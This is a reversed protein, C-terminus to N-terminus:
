GSKALLATFGGDNWCTPDAGPLGSPLTAKQDLLTLGRKRQMWGVQSGNEERDISCTAYLLHGGSKIVGMADRIISQQLAVLSDVHKTDYRYKAEPRRAFVGSNSCPVDAVVVDFPETPSAGEPTYVAVDLDVALEELVARRGENPETAGIMANPFLERLQKTKTGRGACLDLIRTPQQDITHLLSLSSGSTPDQIRVKPNASLLDSIQLEPPAIGFMPISHPTVSEPLQTGAVILPPEAIAHLGFKVSMEGGLQQVVRQWSKKSFGFQPAESKFVPEHFCVWSGDGRPLHCNNGVEGTEEVSKRLRVIKRLVANVFGTARPRKGGHRTWDVACDIIAHDPIRDFLLLQTCGVLLSAAVPPELTGFPRNSAHEIVSVLTLWRKRISRDIARALASDRPDLADCEFLTSELDPFQKFAQAIRASAISRADNM